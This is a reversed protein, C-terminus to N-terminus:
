APIWSCGGERGHKAGVGVVLVAFLLYRVWSVSIDEPIIRHMIRRIPRAFVLAALASVGFAALLTAVLLGIIM